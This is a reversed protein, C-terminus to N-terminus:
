DKYKKKAWKAYEDMTMDEPNKHNTGSSKASVTKTPQIKKAPKTQKTKSIALHGVHAKSLLQLFKPSLDRQFEEQTFGQEQTAFNYLGQAMKSSWGPLNKIAWAETEEARKALQETAQQSREAAREKQQDVIGKQQRELEQFHMYHPQALEPDNQMEQAWNVGEYQKLQEALNIAQAELKFDEEDREREIKFREQEAEFAKVAEAHSQTKQTYDKNKMFSAALEAPVEYDVGDDSTITVTEPESEEEEGEPAEDEGEPQEEQEDGETESVEQQEDEQTDEIEQIEQSEGTELEEKTM